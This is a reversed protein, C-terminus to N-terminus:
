IEQYAQIKEMIIENLEEVIYLKRKEADECEKKLDRDINDAQKNDESMSTAAKLFKLYDCNGTREGIGGFTCDIYVAGAKAAAISNAIAMGFDNHAHIGIEIDVAEKIKKIDDYIKQPYLIGVTDAYRVRDVGEQKAIKCLKILFDINTRSADEFGVATEFGKEKAYYISSKMNDIVWEEDKALKSYIQIKSTPVSIHIIDVGCDISHQIDQYNMRNWTSIKSQLNLAVIKEITKKEEGGMAPIGVEIQYVFSKDILKALEIKDEIGFEIGPKQEGDRLTTDVVKIKM